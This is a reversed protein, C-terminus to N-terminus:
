GLDGLGGWGVPRGLRANAKELRLQYLSTSVWRLHVLHDGFVAIDQLNVPYRMSSVTRCSRDGWGGVAVMVFQVFWKAVGGRRWGVGDMTVGMWEGTMTPVSSPEVLIPAEVIGFQM